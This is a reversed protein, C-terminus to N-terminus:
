INTEQDVNYKYYYFHTAAAAFLRLCLGLKFFTLPHHVLQICIQVCFSARLM